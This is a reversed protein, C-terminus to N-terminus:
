LINHVNFNFMLPQDKWHKDLRNKFVNINPALIVEEPLNNWLNAARFIFSNRRLEKNSHRRFIQKSNRRNTLNKLVVMERMPIEPLADKDYINSMMKYMQVMDGRCRRYELTPLQLNRLREEYNLNKLGPVMKTARRQVNELQIKDKLKYPSWVCVASELHCRVMSKYLLKFTNRNLFKFSRRIAGMMNTAKKIKEKRQIDFDLHKDINVGLDKECTSEKVKDEGLFYGREGDYRKDTISLKKLKEPHFKLLWDDSWLAMKHLDEQLIDVDKTCRIELFIKADDAYLLLESMLGVPLDNIYIVFLIPGLVSGQPVGSKMVMWESEADNVKIKQWRNNLFATTWNWIQEEIGYAKMKEVLRRHPVTDFAKMFDTYICDVVHGNDIAETWKELVYLLQLEVSRGSIFGYQNKSFLNNKRMHLVIHDRIIKELSKCLICTLSVPRYNGALSKKGKKFIVTVIAQLWQKPLASDDLSKQFLIVISDAIEGAVEKLFVPVLNDIGPAKDIKLGQIVELVTERTIKIKEMPIKIDRDQIRPCNGSPEETQVSAFFFQFYIQKREIM